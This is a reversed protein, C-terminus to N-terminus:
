NERRFSVTSHHQCAIHTESAGRQTHRAHTKHGTPPTSTQPRFGEQAIPAVYMHAEREKSLMCFATSTCTHPRQLRCVTCDQTCFTNYHLLTLLSYMVYVSNPITFAKPPTCLRKRLRQLGACMTTNEHSRFKAVALCTACHLEHLVKNPVHTPATVKKGVADTPCRPLYCWDAQWGLAQQKTPASSCARSAATLYYVAM